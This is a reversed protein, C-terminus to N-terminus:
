VVASLVEFGTQSYAYGLCAMVFCQVLFYSLLAVPLGLWLWRHRRQQILLAIMAVATLFLLLAFICLFRWPMAGSVPNDLYIRM